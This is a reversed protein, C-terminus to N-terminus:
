AVGAPFCRDAPDTIQCMFTGNVRLKIEPGRCVIPYTNWAEKKYLKALEAPDGLRQVERKGNAAVTVQEGRRAILGRKHHYVFGVLGGDGTM